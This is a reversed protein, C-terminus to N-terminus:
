STRGERADAAAAVERERKRAALHRRQAQREEEVNASNIDSCAPAQMRVGVKTKNPHLVDSIKECATWLLALVNVTDIYM